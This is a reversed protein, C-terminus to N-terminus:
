LGLLARTNDRVMLEIEAETFGCNRLLYCFSRLNEPPASCDVAGADTSLICHKPGIEKIVRAMEYVDGHGRNPMLGGSTMEVVAGLETMERLKEATFDDFWLNPHTIVFKVGIDKNAKLLAICEEPSVHGSALVAGAAATLKMIEIVAPLVEGNEDTIRLCPNVGNFSNRDNVRKIWHGSNGKNFCYEADVTPLWVVKAGCRLAYSASRPSLGGCTENLVISGFVKVEPVLKDSLAAKFMSPCLQDKLVVASMGHDLADEALAISDYYREVFDPGIHIHMDCAGVLPNWKGQMKM